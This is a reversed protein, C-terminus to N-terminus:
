FTFHYRMYSIRIICEELFVSKLLARADPFVRSVKNRSMKISGYCSNGNVATLNNNRSFELDKNRSVNCLVPTGIEIHMETLRRLPSKRHADRIEIKDCDAVM